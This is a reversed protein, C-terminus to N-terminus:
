RKQHKLFKIQELIMERDRPSLNKFGRFLLQVEEDQLLDALEDDSARGLLRSVSTKLAKAIKQLVETSPHRDGSEIQSVTSPQIDAIQALKSQSWGAKLREAKIRDGVTEEM